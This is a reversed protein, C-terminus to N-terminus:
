RSLGRTTRGEGDHPALTAFDTRRRRRAIVIAAVVGVLPSNLLFMGTLPGGLWAIALDMWGLPFALLVLIGQGTRQLWHLEEALKPVCSAFLVFTAFGHLLMVVFAVIIPSWPRAGYSKM